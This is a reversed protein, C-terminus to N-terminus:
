PNKRGFKTAMPCKLLVKVEPHGKVKPPTAEFIHGCVEPGWGRVGHWTEAGYRVARRFAHGYVGVYICVYKCFKVYM